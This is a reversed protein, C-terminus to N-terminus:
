MYRLCNRNQTVKSVIPHQTISWNPPGGNKKIYINRYWRIWRGVQNLPSLRTVTVSSARESVCMCLCMYLCQTACLCVYVHACPKTWVSTLKNSFRRALWLLLLLLHIGKHLDSLQRRAESGWSIQTLGPYQGGRASTHPGGPRWCNRPGTSSPRNFTHYTTSPSAAIGAPLSHDRQKRRGRDSNGGGAGSPLPM